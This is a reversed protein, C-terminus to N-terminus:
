RASLPAGHKPPPRLRAGRFNNRPGYYSVGSRQAAGGLQSSERSQARLKSLPYLYAAGYGAADGPHSHINKEIERSSQGNKSIPRHWGGRLAHWVERANKRHIQVVGRGEVTRSLVSRLPEVRAEISEPGPHFRGGILRAIARVPSNRTDSQDGTLGTRDGIHEWSYNRLTTALLPAVENEILQVCGVGQGVFSWLFNWNGMPSIQTVLCTPNHGFDWCLYLTCGPVPIITESLHLADSFEPTVARGLQQFGWKGDAMRDAMDKRGARVYRERLDDYYGPKLNRENEPSDSRLYRYGPTGPDVFDRYTWHGEDPSNEAIKCGWWKMGSQRIQGMVANFNELDIGGSEAVAPAVEDFGAHAIPRSAIKNSDEKSDLGLFHTWGRIEGANWTFLRKSEHWEGAQEFWHFFEVMTTDRLNVYTDRIIYNHAGRNEKHHLFDAWVLGTSKGEGKRAAWLVAKSTRDHIFDHQVANATFKVEHRREVDEALRDAGDTTELM